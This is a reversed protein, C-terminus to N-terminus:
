VGHGKDADTRCGRYILDHAHPDLTIRWTCVDEDTAAVM